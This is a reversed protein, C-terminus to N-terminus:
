YSQDITEGALWGIATRNFIDPVTVNCCHGGWPLTALRAGPAQEAMVASCTWPVLVDDMTAIALMPPLLFPLRDLVDFDRLASIRRDMAEVGPFHALLLAEQGDLEEFHNSVWEAPYLFTPQARIYAEPGATRLLTLRTEFSRIVHADPAAWGNVVILRGIRDPAELAVKLGALGGLSHGMFHAQALGLGDMLALIDAAMSDINASPVTRDSMGTGRHDYLVLRFRRALEGLNPAWYAAAGSLGASLILPEGDAPGHLECHLGAVLM